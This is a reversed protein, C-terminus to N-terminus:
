LPREYWAVDHFRGFKRGVERFTGLHTFGLWRHLAISADNPLAIGAFARHLGDERELTELLTGYLLRGIGRGTQAPDLYISCEVSTAYAAKPRLRSSFAYGAIRGASQAVLLRYPGAPGFCAFWKRRSAVTVPELDFTVHTRAVYHNYIRVIAALDHVTGARIGTGSM